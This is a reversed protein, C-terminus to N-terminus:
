ENTDVKKTLPIPTMGGDVVFNQGTIFSSDESVLFAVARGLEIPDAYRGLPIAAIREPDNPHTDIFGPLVCNARIGEPGYRQAYLQVWNQVAARVVSSVPMALEPSQAAYSTIVAWSGSNQKLMVPTIAKALRLLSFFLMELGSNWDQESISLLDGAPPHGGNVVVADIRGHIELTSRVLRDLDAQENLSGRISTAGLESALADNRESTAFLMLEHTEALARAVGEGIGASAATVIAVPRSM